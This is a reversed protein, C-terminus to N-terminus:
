IRAEASALDAARNVNFFAGRGPFRVPVAGAAEAFGAMRRDGAALAARLDDALASRWLGCVPHLGDDDEALAVASDGRGAALRAGLDVPFFPIDVAVTLVDPMGEGAAWDLAALLGALPGAHGPLPDPLCAAGPPMLEALRRPAPGACVALVACQPALRGAARSLLPEGGLVLGAKVAGGMRRGAGGALIAGAVGSATAEPVM